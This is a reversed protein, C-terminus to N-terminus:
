RTAKRAQAATDIRLRGQEEVWELRDAMELWRAAAEAARARVNPLISREAEVHASAANRRYSELLYSM